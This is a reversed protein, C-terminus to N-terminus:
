ASARTSHASSPSALTMASPLEDLLRRVTDPVPYPLLFPSWSVLIWIAGLWWGVFLFWLVRMWLPFPRGHRRVLEPPTLRRVHAVWPRKRRPGSQSGELRADVRDQGPPKQGVTALWEGFRYTRKAFPAGVLTLNVLYGLAFVVLPLVTGLTMFWAYGAWSEGARVARRLREGRSPARVSEDTLQAV